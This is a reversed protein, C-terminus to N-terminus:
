RRKSASLSPTMKFEIDDEKCYIHSLKVTMLMKTINLLVYVQLVLGFKPEINNIGDKDWELTVWIHQDEVERSELWWSCEAPLLQKTWEQHALM